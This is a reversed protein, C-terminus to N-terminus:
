DASAVAAVATREREGRLGDFVPTFAKTPSLTPTLPIRLSGFDSLNGRVRSAM